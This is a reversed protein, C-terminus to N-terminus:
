RLEDLLQSLALRTAEAQRDQRTVSALRWSGSSGSTIQDSDASRYYTAWFVRGDLSEPADPGLHGTIGLSVDAEPTTRLVSRAIETTAFPSVASDEALQKEDVGLWAVKTLDRYVVASGCFNASIGAVRGLTASILGATCSEALVLMRTTQRLKQAVQTALTDVDMTSQDTSDKDTSSPTSVM